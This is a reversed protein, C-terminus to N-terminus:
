TGLFPLKASDWGNESRIKGFLELENWMKLPRKEAVWCRDLWCGLHWGSLAHGPLKRGFFDKTPLKSPCWQAWVFNMLISLDQINTQDWDMWIQLTLVRSGRGHIIHIWTIYDAWFQRLYKLGPTKRLRQSWFDRSGKSASNSTM